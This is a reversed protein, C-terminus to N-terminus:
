SRAPVLHFEFTKESRISNLVFCSQSVRQLIREMKEPSQAGAVTVNLHVRAMWPQGQESLDVALKASVDITEYVAQSKEAFVKFTAVFCNAVAMAYLDEPSFGGGPGKFEPPIACPVATPVSAATSTWNRQVGPGAQVQVSFDMPYMTNQAM